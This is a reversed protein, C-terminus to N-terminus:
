IKLVLNELFLNLNIHIIQIILGIKRIKSIHNELIFLYAQLSFKIKSLQHHTHARRTTSSTLDKMISWIGCSPPESVVQQTTVKLASM